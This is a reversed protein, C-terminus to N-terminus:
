ATSSGAAAEGGEGALDHQARGVAVGVIVVAFQGCEVPTKGGEFDGQGTQEVRQRHGADFDINGLRLLLPAVTRTRSTIRIEREEARAWGALRATGSVPALRDEWATPLFSRM